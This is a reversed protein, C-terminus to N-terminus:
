VGATLLVITVLDTEFAGVPGSISLSGLFGGFMLGFSLPFERLGILRIVETYRYDVFSFWVTLILSLCHDDFTM